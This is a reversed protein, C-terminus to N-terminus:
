YVGAAYVNGSNMAPRTELLRRGRSCESWPSNWGGWGGLVFKPSLQEPVERGVLDKCAQLPESEMLANNQKLHSGMPPLFTHQSFPLQAEHRSFVAAQM